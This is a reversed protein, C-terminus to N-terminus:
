KDGVEDVYRAPDEIDDLHRERAMGPVEVEDGMESVRRIQDRM